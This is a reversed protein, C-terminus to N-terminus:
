FCYKKLAIKVLKPRDEMWYAEYEREKSGSLKSSGEWAKAKYPNLRMKEKLVLDLTNGNNCLQAVHTAEHRLARRLYTPTMTFNNDPGSKPMLYGGVEMANRTCIVVTKQERKLFGFFKRGLLCLPTNEEVSFNAKYILELIEKDVTKLFLLFEM